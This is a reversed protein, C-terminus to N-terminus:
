AHEDHKDVMLIDIGIVVLTLLDEAFIKATLKGVDEPFQVIHVKIGAVNENRTWGEKIGAVNENRTWGVHHTSIESIGTGNVLDKGKM